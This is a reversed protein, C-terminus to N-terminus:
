CECDGGEEGQAVVLKMGMEAAAAALTRTTVSFLKDVPTNFLSGVPPEFPHIRGAQYSVPALRGQERLGGQTNQFTVPVCCM